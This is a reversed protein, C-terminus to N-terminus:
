PTVKKVKTVRAVVDTSVQVNKTFCSSCLLMEIAVTKNKYSTTWYPRAVVGSDREVILPRVELQIESTAPGGCTACPPREPEPAEMGRRSRIAM